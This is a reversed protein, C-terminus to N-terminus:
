FMTCNKQLRIGLFSYLVDLSKESVAKTVFQHKNNHYRSHRRFDAADLPRADSFLDWRREKWSRRVWEFKIVRHGQNPEMVCVFHRIRYVITYRGREIFLRYIVDCLRCFLLRSFRQRTGLNEKKEREQQTITLFYFHFTIIKYLFIRITM